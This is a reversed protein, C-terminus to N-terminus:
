RVGRKRQKEAGGAYRLITQGSPAAYQRGYLHPRRSPTGNISLVAVQHLDQLTLVLRSPM